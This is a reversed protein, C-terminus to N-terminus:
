ERQETRGVGLDAACLRDHRHTRHAGTGALALRRATDDLDEHPESQFNHRDAVRHRVAVKEGLLHLTEGFDGIEFAVVAGDLLHLLVLRVDHAAVDDVRAVVVLRDHTSGLAIGVPAVDDDPIAAVVVDREDLGVDLDRHHIRM